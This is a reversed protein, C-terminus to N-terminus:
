AAAPTARVEQADNMDTDGSANVWDLDTDQERPPLVVPRGDYMQRRGPYVFTKFLYVALSKQALNPHLTPAVQQAHAEQLLSWHLNPELHHMGHFGNNVHFWNFLKGTFNRSHNVPHDPDTGEHQLYNVTTIGWVATLHPLVVFLLGKRWDILLAAAKISWVVAIELALQRHWEAIRGKMKKKFHYNGITVGPGVVFFFTLLNLLNWNFRVKTTRMVDERRQAYRHHSLNHGPLYESIPFGYCCTVWLQFLKNAWRKNFVPSHVVNHAIVAAQWSAFCALAVLPYLVPGSPNWVWLLTVLFTYHALFGITRLDAKYRLM